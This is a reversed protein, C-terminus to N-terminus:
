RRRRGGGQWLILRSRRSDIQMNLRGLVNLGLLGKNALRGALDLVVAKVNTVKIKGAVLIWPLVVQEAMVKGNATTIEVKPNSSNLLGLARAVGTPITTFSAGTDVVFTM